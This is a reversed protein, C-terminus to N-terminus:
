HDLGCQLISIKLPSILLVTMSVLILAWMPIPHLLFYAIAKSFFKIGLSQPLSLKLPGRPRSKLENIEEEAEQLDKLARSARAYYVAGGETVSVNRTTRNLLKM